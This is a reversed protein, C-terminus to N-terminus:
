TIVLMDTTTGIVVIKGGHAHIRTWPGTPLTMSGTSLGTSADVVVIATAGLLYDSGGLTAVDVVSAGPISSTNYRTMTPATPALAFWEGGPGYCRFENASADWVVGALGFQIAGSGTRWALVTSVSLDSTKIYALSYVTYGVYTAGYYIVYDDSAAMPTVADPGVWATYTPFSKWAGLAM